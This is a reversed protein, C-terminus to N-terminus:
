AKRRGRRSYGEGLGVLFAISKRLGPAAPKTDGRRSKSLSPYVELRKRPAKPVRRVRQGEARARAVGRGLGYAFRQVFSARAKKQAPTVM